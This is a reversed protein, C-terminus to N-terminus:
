VKLKLELPDEGKKQVRTPVKSVHAYVGAFLWDKFTFSDLEQNSGDNFVM